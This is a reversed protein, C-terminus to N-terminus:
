GPMLLITGRFGHADLPLKSVYDIAAQIHYGANERVQVVIKVPVNPIAEESAKYGCYSFDPIRNGLSDNNYLLKGKEFVLPLAPKAAKQALLDQQLLISALFLLFRFRIM